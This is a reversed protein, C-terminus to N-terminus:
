ADFVARGATMNSCYHKSAVDRETPRIGRVESSWRLEDWADHNQEAHRQAGRRDLLKSLLEEGAKFGIVSWELSLVSERRCKTPAAIADAMETLWRPSPLTM